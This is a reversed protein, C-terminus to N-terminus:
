LYVYMCVYICVYMSVYVCVNYMCVYMCVCVFFFLGPRLRLALVLWAVASGSVRLVWFEEVVPSCWGALCVEAEVCVTMRKGTGALRLGTRGSDM